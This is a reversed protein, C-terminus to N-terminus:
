RSPQAPKKRAFEGPLTKKKGAGEGLSIGTSRNLREDKQPEGRGAKPDDQGGRGKSGTCGRKKSSTDGLSKQRQMGWPM